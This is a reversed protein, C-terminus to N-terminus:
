DTEFAYINRLPRIPEGAYVIQVEPCRHGGGFKGAAAPEIRRAADIKLKLSL